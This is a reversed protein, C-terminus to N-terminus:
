NILYKIKGTQRQRSVVPKTINQRNGMNGEKKRKQEEKAQKRERREKFYRTAIKPIRRAL